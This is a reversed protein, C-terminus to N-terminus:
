AVPPAGSGAGLARQMFVTDVWCGLKFGVAKLTGVDQFGLKRHLAISGANQSNGIVALMQRWPGAECRGVLATLLATGIGQGTCGEALYLSDELTHRYAARARYTSAYAYGAVLGDREAVLYPLGLNLVAARRALLEETSPPIEEFTALGHLVHPTYIAQVAAMDAETAARVLMPQAPTAASTM